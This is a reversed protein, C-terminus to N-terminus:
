RIEGERPQGAGPKWRQHMWLWSERLREDNRLKAELWVNAKEIVLEGKKLSEMEEVEICSRWFGIRRTYVFLIRPKYKKNLIDPLTTCSCERGMFSLRTGAGGANQDFLMALTEGRKLVKLTKLMGGDKRDITKVGFRERSDKVFKNISENKLPRFLAYVDKELTLMHPLMAITDAHCFHPILWLTGASNLNKRKIVDIKQQSITFLKKIKSETLFPWALGLLGQEIINTCSAYFIKLIKPLGLSPFSLVLNNVALKRRKSFFTFLLFGLIKTLILWLLKPSIALFSGISVLVYHQM